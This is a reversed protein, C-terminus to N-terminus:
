ENVHNLDLIKPIVIEPAIYKNYFIVMNNKLQEISFQNMKEIIKEKTDRHSIYIFCNSEEVYKPLFDDDNEQFYIPITMNVIAEAFRGPLISTFKFNNYTFSPRTSTVISYVSDGTKNLYDQYKSLENNGNMDRGGEYFLGKMKPFTGIIADFANRRFGKNTGIFCIDITKNEFKHENLIMPLFPIYQHKFSYEEKGLFKLYSSVDYDVSIIKDCIDNYSRFYDLYSESTQGVFYNGFWADPIISIVKIVCGSEKFKKIKAFVEHMKPSELPRSNWIFLIKITNSVKKAELISREFSDLDVEVKKEKVSWKIPFFYKPIQKNFANLIVKYVDSEILNISTESSTPALTLYPCCYFIVVESTM